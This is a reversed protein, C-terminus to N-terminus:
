SEIIPINDLSPQGAQIFGLVASGHAKHRARVTDEIRVASAENNGDLLDGRWDALKKIQEASLGDSEGPPPLPSIELVSRAM